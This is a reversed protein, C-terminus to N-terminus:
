KEGTGSLGPREADAAENDSAEHIDEWPLAYQPRHSSLSSGTHTVIDNEDFFVWLRDTRTDANGVILILLFLGAGKTVQHDYRYASRNGLEVVQTPGGLLEVIQAATTRGPEIQAIAAPDLPENRSSRFLACGALLHCALVIALLRVM